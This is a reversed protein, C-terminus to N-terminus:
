VLAARIWNGWPLSLIVDVLAIWLGLIVVTAVVVVSSGIVENKSSWSVKTMEVETEAFFDVLKAHNVARWVGVGGAVTLVVAVLLAWSVPFDPGLPQFAAVMPGRAREPLTYFLQHCGFVILAMLSGGMFWRSYVAQDPKYLEFAPM